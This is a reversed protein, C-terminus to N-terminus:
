AICGGWRSMNSAIIGEETVDLDCISSDERTDVKLGFRETFKEVMSYPVEFWGMNYDRVFALGSLSIEKKIEDSSNVFVLFTAQKRKNTRKIGM